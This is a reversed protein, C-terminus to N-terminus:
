RSVHAATSIFDRDSERRLLRGLRIVAVNGVGLPEDARLKALSVMDDGVYTQPERMLLERIQQVTLISPQGLRKERTRIRSALRAAPDSRRRETNRRNACSRCWYFSRALGKESFDSAPKVLDCVKCKVSSGDAACISLVM